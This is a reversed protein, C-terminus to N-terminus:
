TTSRVMALHAADNYRLFTWSGDGNRVFETISTNVPELRFPRQHSEALGPAGLMYCCAAAIYGGHTFMVVSRGRHRGLLAATAARVREDFTRLSEGGPSMPLDPDTMEGYRNRYVDWTLGDCDGPHLECYDCDAVPDVAVPFASAVIEATEIARPLTSTLVVDPALEGTERIRDRLVEAQARGLDNLGRCGKPGGVVGDDHARAAGHRILVFRSTATESTM